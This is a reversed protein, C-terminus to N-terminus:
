ARRRDGTRPDLDLEMKRGERRLESEWWGDDFEVERIEAGRAHENEVRELVQSLPMADRPPLDDERESETSRGREEGTRPDLRLNFQGDGTAISVEWHSAEREIDHITGLSQDELGKVIASLAKAEAAQGAGREREQAFSVSVALLLAASAVALFPRNSM